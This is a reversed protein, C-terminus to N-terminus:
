KAMRPIKIKNFFSRRKRHSVVSCLGQYFWIEPNVQHPKRSLPIQVHSQLLELTFTIFVSIATKKVLRCIPKIGKNLKPLLVIAINICNLNTLESMNYYTIKTVTSRNLGQVWTFTPAEIVHIYPKKRHKLQEWQLTPQRRGGWKKHEILIFTMNKNFSRKM